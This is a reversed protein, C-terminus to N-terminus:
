RAGKLEATVIGEGIVDSIAMQIARSADLYNQTVPSFRDSDSIRMFTRALAYFMAMPNAKDQKMLDPATGHTAESISATIRYDYSVALIESQSAAESGYIGAM